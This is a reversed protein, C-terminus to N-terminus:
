HQETKWFSPSTTPLPECKGQVDESQPDPNQSQHLFQPLVTAQWIEGCNGRVRMHRCGTSSGELGRSLSQIRIFLYLHFWFTGSHLGATSTDTATMCSERARKWETVWDTWTIPRNTANLRVIGHGSEQHFVVGPFDRQFLFPFTFFCFFVPCVCVRKNSFLTFFVTCVQLADGRVRQQLVRQGLRPQGRGPQQLWRERVRENGSCGSSCTWLLFAHFGPAYFCKPKGTHFCSFFVRPLLTCCRSCQVFTM